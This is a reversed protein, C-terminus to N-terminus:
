HHKLILDSAIKGSILSPPVGPGPVTLQGTFFLNKVKKSKIKPRLFATQTLINALGYANGKYSNYDKVFDKVCFSEKFIVNEKVSQQTLKELRNIILDFYKERLEPTDEIGPAIPILFTAAENNIPAFSGETISPFSAYFMPDKPWSPNDYISAAHVDFDTDFFLTHHCVDKLKKDFGVYFLLSSPAFVKKDWYKESYQRYDKPLLTETHHYDAGSLVIDSAVFDGNVILGIAEGSQNLKIEEVNAETKFTVGLDKSLTVMAEIVKYMGGKPHWTGLVFDAYNMFNYFAPTNSPKAGLFLVPFELIQILKKSKIKRRVEKRISSFFQTIKGITVPTVLELPSVGPNYVLDNISVDYNYAASKLFTKLHVSSGKEETEFIEYIEEVSGPITISDTTDFYVQYAPDLKELEYYDSPKKGFDAFFKEFVDPMWYWTPGIDFIFGDKILQRARGGVTENKELVVVDYGAKALYCSASLSSFGSGIIHITKKM